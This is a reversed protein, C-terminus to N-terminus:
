SKKDKMSKAYGKVLRDMESMKLDYKDKGLAFEISWSTSLDLAHFLGNFTANMFDLIRNNLMLMDDQKFAEEFYTMDSHLLETNSVRDILFEVIPECQLQRVKDEESEENPLDVKVERLEELMVDFLQQRAERVKPSVFSLKKLKEELVYRARTEIYRSDLIPRVDVELMKGLLESVIDDAKKQAHERVRAVFTPLETPKKDPM